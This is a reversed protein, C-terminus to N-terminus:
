DSTAPSPDNPEIGHARLIADMRAKVHAIDDGGAQACIADAQSAFATWVGVHDSDNMVLMTLDRGLEDLLADLEARTRPM